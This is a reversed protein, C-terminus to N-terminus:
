FFDFIFYTFVYTRIKSNSYIVLDIAIYEFMDLNMNKLQLQNLYCPIIHVHTNVHEIESM